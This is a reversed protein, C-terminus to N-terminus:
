EAAAKEVNAPNGLWVEVAKLVIPCYWGPKQKMEEVMSLTPTKGNSLANLDQLVKLIRAELPIDEGFVSDDPFGRGDFHKNQYYIIDAVDKMRPINGILDRGIEPIRDVMRQEVPALNADTLQRNLVDRPITVRGIPALMAALDLKWPHALGLIPALKRGWDRVVQTTGLLEPDLMALMDTLVKVSGALTQELLIREASVLRYYELAAAIGEALHTADCPKTYFRYINGQNIADMATQQDAGGTLMIRVTDPMAQKFRKLTELGDMGPMYMDCVVVAVPGSQRAVQLAKEGDEATAVSFQKGLHRKLSALINPDDDVILVIESM